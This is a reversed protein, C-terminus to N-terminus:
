KKGLSLSRMSEELIDAVCGLGCKRADDQSLASASLKSTSAVAARLKPTAPPTAPEVDVVRLVAKGELVRQVKDQDWNGAAHSSAGHLSSASSSSPSAGSFAEWFASGLKRFVTQSAMAALLAHQQERASSAAVAKPTLLLV